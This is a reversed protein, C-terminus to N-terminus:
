AASSLQFTLRLSTGPYDVESENLHELLKSVPRNLRPEGLPHIVVRLIGADPKPYLDAATAFLAKIVARAEDPKAILPAVLEALATEARYAIMRLTDLLLKRTPALRQFQCEPPLQHFPIHKLIEARAHRAIALKEVLDSIATVRHDKEKRWTEFQAENSPVTELTWNAMATKAVAIQGRLKRCAVDQQKWQPNPVQVRQISHPLVETGYEGLLDLGYEQIMYRFCNEQGWRAFMAPAETEAMQTLDASVIATQHNAYQGRCLRRIERCPLGDTQSGFHIDRSALEMSETQGEARRVAHTHFAGEPWDEGPMKRYSLCAIRHPTWMEKFFAPSCGARDFVLRFRPLLPDARLAEESPQGPVDRLLQPVIVDRLAALLGNDIPREIYFFPKGLRDNVWYDTVGRLCLRQRAIYHRPLATQSGTYARVHGDVYLTGAAEPDAKMWDRSLANSWRQVAVADTALLGLKGRVYRVEPIRDLGLIKGIEGPTERRLSEVTRVRLRAMVSLLLLLHILQYYGKQMPKWLALHAFLGNAVLAPIACLVGGQAVDLCTEFRTKVGTLLGCAALARETVRTCANGFVPEAARDALVRETRTTGEAAPIRKVSAPLHGRQLAKDINSKKIGVRQAVEGRSHGAELLARCQACVEPRMVAASRVGSPAYFGADGKARYVRAAASVTNPHVGLAAAIQAQSVGGHHHIFAMMARQTRHDNAAHVRMPYQGSFWTVDTAGRFVSYVESIASAGAPILPLIGQKM